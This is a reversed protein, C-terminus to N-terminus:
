RAKRHRSKGEAIIGSVSKKSYKGRAIEERSRKISANLADRNRHIYNGVEDIYREDDEIFVADPAPKARAKEM